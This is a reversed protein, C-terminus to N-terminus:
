HPLARGKAAVRRYGLTLVGAVAGLAVALAAGLLLHFFVGGFMDEIIWTNFDSMGSRVFDDYDGETRFFREQLASGRLLYYAGLVTIVLAISVIMGSLTSAWVAERIRATRWAAIAGAILCSAAVAGLVLGNDVTRGVYEVLVSPVFVAAALAGCAVIARLIRPHRDGIAHVGQHAILAYIALMAAPALPDVSPALRWGNLLLGLAVLLALHIGRELRRALSADPM